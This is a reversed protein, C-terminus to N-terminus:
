DYSISRIHNYFKLPYDTCIMFKELSFKNNKNRIQEFIRDWFKLYDRKHLEPSVVAINEWHEMLKIMNEFLEYNENFSDLWIGKPNLSKLLYSEEYESNRAYFNSLNKKINILEPISMDFIFYNTIKYKDFLKKLKKGLGDEKINIALFSNFNKKHYYDLLNEFKYLNNKSESTIIDHSICIIGSENKVDTELGFGLDLAKKLSKESNKKYIGGEDWLGRHALIRGKDFFKM